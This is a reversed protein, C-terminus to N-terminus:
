IYNKHVIVIGHKDKQFRVVNAIRPDVVGQHKEMWEGLTVDRAIEEEREIIEITKKEEGEVVKERREYWRVVYSSSEVERTVINNNESM